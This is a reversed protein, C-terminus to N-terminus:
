ETVAEAAKKAQQKEILSWVLSILTLAGGIVVDASELVKTLDGGPIYGANVLMGGVMTLAHRIVSRFAANKIADKGKAFISFPNFM